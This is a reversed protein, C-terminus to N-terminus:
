REGDESDAQAKKCLRQYHDACERRVSAWDDQNLESEVCRDGCYVSLVNIPRGDEVEYVIDVPVEGEDTEITTKIEFESV